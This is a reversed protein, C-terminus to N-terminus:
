QGAKLDLEVKVAILTETIANTTVDAQKIIPALNDILAKVELPTVPLPTLLNELSDLTQRFAEAQEWYARTTESKGDTMEYLKVLADCNEVFAQDERCQNFIGVIAEPAKTTAPDVLGTPEAIEQPKSHLIGMALRTAGILTNLNKQM